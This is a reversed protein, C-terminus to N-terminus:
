LYWVKCGNAMKKDKIAIGKEKLDKPDLFYKKCPGGFGRGKHNAVKVWESKVPVGFKRLENCYSYFRRREIKILKYPIFVEGSLLRKFLEQLKLGYINKGNFRVPDKSEKVGKFNKISPKKNLVHIKHLENESNTCWELNKIYNNQKNGDKHNVVHKNTDIGLFSLAVLRHTLYTKKINNRSLEIFQYGFPTSSIKLVRERVIRKGGKPHNVYTELRKVRGYNSIQYINEYGSIDKWIEEQSNQQMTIDSKQPSFLFQRPTAVGCGIFPSLFLDKVEANNNTSFRLQENDTIHHRM